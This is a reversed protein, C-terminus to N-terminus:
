NEVQEGAEAIRPPPFRTFVNSGVLTSQWADTQRVARSLLWQTRIEEKEGGFYQGSWTTTSHADRLDNKFNVTWGLTVGRNPLPQTEYRGTLIYFDKANGVASNYQGSLTGNLSADFRVTSGLENYWTGNISALAAALTAASFIYM